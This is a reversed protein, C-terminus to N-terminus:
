VVSKRDQTAHDAVFLHNGAFEVARAPMTLLIAIGGAAFPATFSERFRSM